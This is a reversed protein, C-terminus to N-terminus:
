TNKGKCDEKERERHTNEKRRSIPEEENHINDSDDSTTAATRNKDFISEYM